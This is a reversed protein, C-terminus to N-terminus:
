EIIRVVDVGAETMNGQITVRTAETFNDPNCVAESDGAQCVSNEDFALPVFGGGNETFVIHWRTSDLPAPVSKLLQGSQEFTFEREPASEGSFCGISSIQWAGEVVDLTVLAYEGATLGDGRAFVQLEAATDSTSVAAMRIREPVVAQCLVPLTGAEAAVISSRVAESLLPQALLEASSPTATASQSAVLWAQYFDLTVDEASEEPLSDTAPTDSGPREGRMFWLVLGILVLLGILVIIRKM